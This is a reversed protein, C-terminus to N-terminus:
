LRHRGVTLHHNTVSILVTSDLSLLKGAVCVLFCDIVRKVVFTFNYSRHLNVDVVDVFFLYSLDNTGLIHFNTQQSRYSQFVLIGVYFISKFITHAELLEITGVFHHIRSNPTKLMVLLSM